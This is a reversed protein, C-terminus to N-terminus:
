VGAQPRIYSRSKELMVAVQKSLFDLMDLEEAALKRPESDLVCLNGLVLGTSLVLPAGVYFRIGLPGTVLPNDAFRPDAAADEVVLIRDCFAMACECFSKDKPIQLADLGVRTRFWMKDGDQLSILAIRGQCVQLATTTLDVYAQEDNFQEAM